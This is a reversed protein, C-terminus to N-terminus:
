GAAGVLDPLDPGTREGRGAAQSILRVAETIGGAVDGVGFSASMAVAALRLAHDPVRRAGSESTVVELRRSEPAALLLVSPVGAMGLDALLARAATAPDEAPGLHVCIELGTWAEAAEVARAIRARQRKTLPKGPVV